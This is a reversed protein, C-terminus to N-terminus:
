ACHLAELEDGNALHVLCDLTVMQWFSGEEERCGWSGRFVVKSHNSGVEKGGQADHRGPSRGLESCLM